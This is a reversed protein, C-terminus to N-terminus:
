TIQVPILAFFFIKKPFFIKFHCVWFFQTKWGGGFSSCYNGFNWLNTRPHVPDISTLPMWKEWGINDGPQEVYAWNVVFVVLFAYSQMGIFILSLFHPPISLIFKDNYYLICWWMADLGATQGMPSGLQSQGFCYLDLRM